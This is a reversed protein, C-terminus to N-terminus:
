KKDKQFIKIWGLDQWSKLESCYSLGNKPIPNLYFINIKKNLVKNIGIAFAIEAFVGPGIYGPIGNKELNLVFVMDARPIARYCDLFSKKYNNLFNEKIKTPHKTVKCGDKELKKVWAQTEKEFSASACIVIKKKEM